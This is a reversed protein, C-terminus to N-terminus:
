VKRKRSTICRYHFFEQRLEQNHPDKHRHLNRKQRQFKQGAPIYACLFQFQVKSDAPAFILFTTFIYFYNYVAETNNLFPM